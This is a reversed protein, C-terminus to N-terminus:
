ECLVNSEIQKRSFNNKLSIGSDISINCLTVFNIYFAAFSPIQTIKEYGNLMISLKKRAIQCYRIVVKDKKTKKAKKKVDLPNSSAAEDVNVTVNNASQISDESSESQLLKLQEPTLMQSGAGPHPQAPPPNKLQGKSPPSATVAAAAVKRSKGSAM